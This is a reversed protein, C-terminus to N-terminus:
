FMKSGLLSLILSQINALINFDQKLSFYPLTVSHLPYPHVTEYKYSSFSVLHPWKKYKQCRWVDKYLRWEASDGFPGRGFINLSTLDNWGICLNTEAPSRDWTWSKRNEEFPGVFQWSNESQYSAKARSWRIGSCAKTGRCWSSPLFPAVNSIHERELKLLWSHWLWYFGKHYGLRVIIFM